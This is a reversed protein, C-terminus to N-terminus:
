ASMDEWGFPRHEVTQARVRTIQHITNLALTKREKILEINESLISVFEALSKVDTNKEIPDTASNHRLDFIQKLDKSAKLIKNLDNTALPAAIVLVGALNKSTLNRLDNFDSASLDHWILERGKFKQQAAKVNRVHLHLEVGDKALWPLIEECLSGSGIIHIETEGLRKVEKRLISGYSQSGLDSLHQLRVKKVDELLAQFCKKMEIGFHSSPFNFKAVANKFQGLVETEGLLSSHLGCVVALIFEYAKEAEFIEDREVLEWTSIEDRPGILIHRMCTKFQFWSHLNQARGSVFDGDIAKRNILVIDQLM